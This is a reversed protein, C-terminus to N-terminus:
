ALRQGFEADVLRGEGLKKAFGSREEGVARQGTPDDLRHRHDESAGISIRQKQHLQRRSSSRAHVSASGKADTGVIGVNRGSPTGGLPPARGPLYAVMTTAVATPYLRLWAPGGKAQELAVAM